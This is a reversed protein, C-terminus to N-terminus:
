GGVVGGAGPGGVYFYSGWSGGSKFSPQIRYRDSDSVIIQASGDFDYSVRGNDADLYIINHLYAAHGFGREPFEGSGMDTTTMQPGSNFIEGYFNIRDSGAALTDPAAVNRAFLSGPYYGIWRDLVWLWWNGEFLFFGIEVEYQAGGDIAVPAFPVGPYILGDIQVWGAHERNWGGLGDGDGSYGNTTFYTFLHPPQVQNPYNIWGAEVTQMVPGTGNGRIVATQLLSFDSGTQVYPQFLSFTAGGGRNAVAQSSSAYWHQGAYSAKASTQNAGAGDDGPEPLRKIPPTPGGSRLIPVTGKPGNMAPDRPILTEIDVPQASRNGKPPPPPRNAIKGQSEPVIWDIVQGNASSITKVVKLPGDRGDVPVASASQLLLMTMVPLAKIFLWRM